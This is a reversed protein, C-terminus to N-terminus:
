KNLEKIFYYFVPILAVMCLAVVLVGITEERFEIAHINIEGYKNVYIIALLGVICFLLLFLPVFNDNSMFKFKKM